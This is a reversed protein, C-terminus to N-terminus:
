AAGQRKAAPRPAGQIELPMLAQMLGAGGDVALTQGTVFSADDSCLLRVVNGVDAPRAIRGMPTWGSANWDRIADQVAAPLTNLVSDEV